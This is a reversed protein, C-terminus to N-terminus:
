IATHCFFELHFNPLIFSFYQLILSCMRSQTYSYCAPLRHIALIEEFLLIRPRINVMSYNWTVLPFHLM